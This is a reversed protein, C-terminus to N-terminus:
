AAYKLSPKQYFARIKEPTTKCNAAHIRPGQRGKFDAKDTFDGHPWCTDYGQSTNGSSNMQIATLRIPHFIFYGCPRGKLSEVFTRTKKAIHAPGRDCRDFLNTAQCGYDHTKSVKSSSGGCWEGRRKRQDAHVADPRTRYDGFDLSLAMARVQTKSSPRKVGRRGWTRGAHHDSRMTLLDDGFFIEAKKESRWSSQNEPIGEQAM